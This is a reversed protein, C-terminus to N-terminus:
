QEAAEIMYCTEAEDVVNQRHQRFREIAEDFQKDFSLPKLLRRVKSDKQELISKRFESCLKIIDLYTNSLAQYLRRHKQGNYIQEYDRFRPLIDGIRSLTDVIKDYFKSYSRAM